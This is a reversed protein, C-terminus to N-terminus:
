GLLLIQGAKLGLCKPPHPHPHSEQNRLDHPVRLLELMVEMIVQTTSIQFVLLSAVLLGVQLSVVLTDALGNMEMHTLDKLVMDLPPQPTEQVKRKVGVRRAADLNVLRDEEEQEGVGELVQLSPYIELDELGKILLSQLNVKNKFDKNGTAKGSPKDTVKNVMPKNVMAKDM